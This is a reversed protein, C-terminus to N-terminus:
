NKTSDSRQRLTTQANNKRKKRKKKGDDLETIYDDLMGADILIKENFRLEENKTMHVPRSEPQSEPQLEDIIEVRREAPKDGVNFNVVAARKISGDSDKFDVHQVSM